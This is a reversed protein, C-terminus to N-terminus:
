EPLDFLMRDEARSLAPALWANLESAALEGKEVRELVVAGVLIKRRTEDRRATRSAATRARAKARAHKTKLNKLREEATKIRDEITLAM